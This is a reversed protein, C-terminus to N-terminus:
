ADQDEVLADMLEAGYKRQAWETPDEILESM